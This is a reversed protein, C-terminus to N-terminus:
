ESGLIQLAMIHGYDTMHPVQRDIKSAAFDIFQKRVRRLSSRRLRCLSDLDNLKRGTEM